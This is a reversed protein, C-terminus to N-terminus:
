QAGEDGCPLEHLGVRLYKPLKTLVCNYSHVVLGEVLCDPLSAPEGLTIWHRKNLHYGPVIQVYCERLRVARAPSCKLSVHLPGGDLAMFLFIKSGVRFVLVSDGFPSDESVGPLSLAFDRLALLDM